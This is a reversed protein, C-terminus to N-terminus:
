GGGPVEALERRVASVHVCEVGPPLPLPRCDCVWGAEDGAVAVVGAGDLVMAEVIPCCDCRFTVLVIPPM